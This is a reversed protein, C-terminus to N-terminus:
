EFLTTVVSSPALKAFSNSAWKISTLALDPLLTSNNNLYIAAVNGPVSTEYIIFEIAFM